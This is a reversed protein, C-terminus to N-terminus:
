LATAVLVAPYDPPQKFGFPLHLSVLIGLLIVWRVPALVAGSVEELQTEISSRRPSM